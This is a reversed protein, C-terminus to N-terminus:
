PSRCRTADRAFDALTGSAVEIEVPTEDLTGDLRVRLRGGAPVAAIAQQVGIEAVTRDAPAACRSAGAPSVRRSRRASGRARAPHQGSRAARVELADARGDIDEAVGLRRLLAGVDIVGTSLDITAEPVEGRLDLAVLGEFPTGAVTAAIPSPALRGDRVHAAFGVDVLDIRGLAVRELGLGVDADALEIGYPLLPVDIHARHKGRAPAGAGLTALEPIDILASRM